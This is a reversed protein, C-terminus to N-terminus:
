CTGDSTSARIFDLYNSVRTYVDPEGTSTACGGMAGGPYSWVGVLLAKGMNNLILPGGNDGLCAGATGVPDSRACMNSMAKQNEWGITNALCVPDDDEMIMLNAEKLICQSGVIFPPANEGVEWKETSGWGVITAPMSGYSWPYGGYGYSRGERAENEDLMAYPYGYSAGPMMETESPQPLCVPKVADSWVLDEALKIVWLDHPTSSEPTYWYNSPVTDISAPILKQGTSDDCIDHDGVSVVLNPGAETLNQGFAALLAVTQQYGVLCHAASLIYRKNIITGGCMPLYRSSSGSSSSGTLDIDKLDLMLSVMYPHKNPTVENGGVVRNNFDACETCGLVEPEPTPNPDVDDSACKWVSQDTLQYTKTEELPHSITQLIFFKGVSGMLPKECSLTYTNGNCTVAHANSTSVIGISCGFLTCPCHIQGQGQQEATNGETNFFFRPLKGPDPVGAQVVNQVGILVLLLPSCAWM